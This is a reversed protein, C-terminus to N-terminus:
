HAASEIYSILAQRDAENPMGIYTMLTGPVVAAPSTIWRDLTPKDWTVGSTRLADSYSYGRATGTPRGILGYLNPGIKTLMGEGDSNPQPPTIDHCAACQLFLLKGRKLVRADTAGVQDAAIVPTAAGAAALCTLTFVSLLQRCYKRM